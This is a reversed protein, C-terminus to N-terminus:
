FLQRGLQRWRLDLGAEATRAFAKPGEQQRNGRVHRESICAPSRVPAKVDLAHVFAAWGALWTGEPVASRTLWNRFLRKYSELRPM